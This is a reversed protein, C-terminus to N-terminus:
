TLHGIILQIKKINSHHIRVEQTDLKRRKHIYRTTLKTREWEHTRVARTSLKLMIDVNFVPFLVVAAAAVETTSSQLKSTERLSFQSFTLKDKKIRNKEKM